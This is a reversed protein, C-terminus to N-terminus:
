GRKRRVAGLGALALGLIGVTMPEPVTKMSINGFSEQTNGTATFTVIETVSFTSSLPQSFQSALFTLGSGDAFQHSVLVAGPTPSTAPSQNTQSVLLQELTTTGVDAANVQLTERYDVPNYIGAIGTESVILKLTHGTVSNSIAQVDYAEKLNASYDAGNVGIQAGGKGSLSNIAFLVGINMNTISVTTLAPNASNDAILTVAGGDLQYYLSIVPTAMVPVAQAAVAGLSLAAGLLAAIKMNAM